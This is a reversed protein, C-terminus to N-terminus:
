LGIIGRIYDLYYYFKYFLGKYNDLNKIFEWWYWVDFERFIYFYSFMFM